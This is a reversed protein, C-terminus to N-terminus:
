HKLQQIFETHVKRMTKHKNVLLNRFQSLKINEEALNM